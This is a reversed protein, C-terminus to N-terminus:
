KKVEEKFETIVFQVKAEEKKNDDVTVEYFDGGIFGKFEYRTKDKLEVDSHAVSSIFVNKFTNDQQKVGISLGFGQGNKGFKKVNIVSGTIEFTNVYEKEKAETIEMVRFTPESKDKGNKDKWFSGSMFGKLVYRTKDKIDTQLSTICNVFVNKYTGDQQKVGVSLGFVRTGKSGISKVNHITGTLVLTNVM